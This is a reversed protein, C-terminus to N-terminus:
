TRPPGAKACSSALAVALAVALALAPTWAVSQLWICIMKM